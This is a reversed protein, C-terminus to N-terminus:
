DNFNKNSTTDVTSSNYIEFLGEEVKQYEFGVTLSTIDLIESLAESKFRASFSRHLPASEKIVFDIDYRRELSKLVESLPTNKFVFGGNMWLLLDEINVQEQVLYSNEKENFVLQEGENLFIAESNFHENFLEVRVRGKQVVVETTQREARNRVNFKTGIVNVTVTNSKVIFERHDNKDRQIDFFAEGELVVQDKEDDSYVSVSSSANMKLQIGEKLAFSNIEGRQTEFSQVKPLDQQAIKDIMDRRNDLQYNLLGIGIFGVLLVAAIKYIFSVRFNEEKVKDSETMVNKLKSSSSGEMLMMTTKKQSLQEKIKRLGERSDFDVPCEIETYWIKKLLNFHEQNITCDKIWGEVKRREQDTCESSLYRHITKLDM